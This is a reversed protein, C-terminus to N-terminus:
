SVAAPDLSIVGSDDAGVGSDDSQPEVPVTAEAAVETVYMIPLVYDVGVSTPETENGSALSSCEVVQEPDVATSGDSRVPQQSMAQVVVPAVQDDGAVLTDDLVPQFDDAAFDDAGALLEEFPVAGIADADNDQESPTEPSVPDVSPVDSSVGSDDTPQEDSAKGDATQQHADWNGSLQLPSPSWGMYTVAKCGTTTMCFMIQEQWVAGPFPPTGDGYSTWPLSMKSEAEGTAPQDFTIPAVNAVIASQSILSSAALFFAAQEAQTTDFAQADRLSSRGAAGILVSSPAFRGELPECDLSRKHPSATM